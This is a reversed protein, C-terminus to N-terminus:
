RQPPPLTAHLTVDTFALIPLGAGGTGVYILGNDLALGRASSPTQFQGRETPAGSDAVGFVHVARFDGVVLLNEAVSVSFPLSFTDSNALYNVFRPRVPESVDFIAVGDGGLAYLLRDALALQSFGATTDFGLEHPSRPDSVDIMRLGGQDDAVYAVNGSVVVDFAAGPTDVSGMEQPQDPDTVDIIRLGARGCAIYALSDSLAMGIAV